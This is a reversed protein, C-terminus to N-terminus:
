PCLWSEHVKVLGLVSNESSVAERNSETPIQNEEPNNLLDVLDCAAHWSRGKSKPKGGVGEALSFQLSLKESHKREKLFFSYFQLFVM